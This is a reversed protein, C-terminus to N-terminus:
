HSCGQTSVAQAQGALVGLQSQPAGEAHVGVTTLMHVGFYTKGQVAFASQPAPKVQSISGLQAQAPVPLELEPLPLAVAPVAPM